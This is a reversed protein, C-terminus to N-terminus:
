ACRGWSFEFEIYFDEYSTKAIGPSLSFQWTGGTANCDPWDFWDGGVRIASINTFDGASWRLYTRFGRVHSGPVYEATPVLLYGDHSGSGGPSPSGTIDGLVGNEYFLTHNTGVAQGIHAGWGNCSDIESPKIIGSVATSGVLMSYPVEATNICQRLEYTVELRDVGGLTLTTPTGDLLKIRSRSFLNTSSDGVGIESITGQVEGIGWTFHHRGWGYLEAPVTGHDSSYGGAGIPNTIFTDTASEVAGNTGVYCRVAFGTGLLDLGNDTVINPFWGSDYRPETSDGSFIQINYFGEVSIGLSPIM